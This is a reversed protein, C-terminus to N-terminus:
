VCVAFDLSTELAKSSFRERSKATQTQHALFMCYYNYDWKGSGDMRLFILNEVILSNLIKEKLFDM